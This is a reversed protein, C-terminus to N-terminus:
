SSIASLGSITAIFTGDKAATEKSLRLKANMATCAADAISLGLGVGSVASIRSNVGRHFPQVLEDLNDPLQEDTTNAVTLSVEDSDAADISVTISGDDTNHVVANRILNGVALCILAPDAKVTVDDAADVTVGIHRADIDHEMDALADNVCATLGTVRAGTADHTGNGTGTATLKGYAGSQIRSLTLLADVLEAGRRNAALARRVSPAVDEPFRGQALPADLNTEVAAIPTRLEHSANSVFRREAESAAQIRDLMGNISDGLGTIEDGGRGRGAGDTDIRTGLDNPDLAATQESISKLRRSMRSTVTWIVLISTVGFFVFIVAASIRLGNTIADRNWISIGYPTTITFSGDGGWDLHYPEGNTRGTVTGEGKGNSSGLLLPDDADPQQRTGPLSGASWGQASLFDDDTSTGGTGVDSQTSQGGGQGNEYSITMAYSFMGNIIVTQVIAASGLAILFVVSIAITLRARFTRPTLRGAIRRLIRSVRNRIGTRAKAPPQDHGHGHNRTM